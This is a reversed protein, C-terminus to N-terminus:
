DKKLWEEAKRFVESQERLTKIGANKVTSADERPQILSMVQVPNGDNLEAIQEPSKQNLQGIFTDYRENDCSYMGETMFYRITRNPAVEEHWKEGYNSLDKETIDEMSETKSFPILNEVATEAAKEASIMGIGIGEGWIPDVTPATDGIAVLNGRYLQDSGTQIHGSGRHIADPEIESTSSYDFRPDDVIWDQLYEDIRRGDSYKQHQDNTLYCLGVKARGDGVDFIWSYGGPAIDHDLRLMMSDNIDTIGSTDEELMEPNLEVGDIEYELARGQKDRELDAIGVDEHGALAAAPGTADMIIDANFQDAAATRVGEYFEGPGDVPEYVSQDFYIDAGKEQADLALGQKFEGFDLVAGPLDRVFHNNPSELTVADTYNMIWDEKIQFRGLTGPFTGATSKNSPGPYEEESERELVAVDYNPALQRAAHLGSPGGGAIVVDYREEM